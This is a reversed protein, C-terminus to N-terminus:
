KVKSRKETHLKERAMRIEKLKNGHLPYFYLSIIGIVLAIDPFIFMLSRLGLEIKLSYAGPDYVYWGTTNLVLGITVFILITSLRIILANIGYYGGERRVGTKLEDEDIIDDHVLTFNHTLELALAFPIIDEIDAGFMKAVVMAIVPRLRKGGAMPLWRVAEYFRKPDKIQLVEDLYKNVIGALEQITNKINEDSM